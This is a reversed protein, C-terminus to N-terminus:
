TLLWAALWALATGSVVSGVALTIEMYSWERKPKEEALAGQGYERAHQTCLTGAYTTHYEGDSSCGPRSCFQRSLPVHKWSLRGSTGLTVTQDQDRKTVLERLSAMARDIELIRVSLGAVAGLAADADKQARAIDGSGRPKFLFAEVHDHATQAAVVRKNAWWCPMCYDAGDSHHVVEAAGLCMICTFKKQPAQRKYVEEMAASREREKQWHYECLSWGSGQHEEVPRGCLRTKWSLVAGDDAVNHSVRMEVTCTAAPTYTQPSKVGQKWHEKCWAGNPGSEVAPLGCSRVDWVQKGSPMDPVGTLGVFEGRDLRERVNVTCTAKAAPDNHGSCAHIRCWSGHNCFKEAPAMCLLKDCTMM